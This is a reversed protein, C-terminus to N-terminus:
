VTAEERWPATLHDAETAHPPDLKNVSGGLLVSLDSTAPEEGTGGCHSCEADLGGCRSCTNANGVVVRKAERVDEALQRLTNELEDFAEPKSIIIGIEDVGDNMALVAFVRDPLGIIDVSGTIVGSKTIM